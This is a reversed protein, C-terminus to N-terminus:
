FKWRGEIEAGLDGREDKFGRIRADDSLDYEVDIMTDQPLDFNQKLIARLRDNVEIALSGRIGGRATQDSFNPVFRVNGLPKFINKLWQQLPHSVVEPGFILREMAQMISLSMALYISGDPSGGWLLGIIQEEPLAPVSTFSITPKKASGQIQLQVDYGKITNEAILDLLPEDAHHPDLAVTGQKIYLPKYPFLLVGQSLYITGGVTPRALEGTITLRAAAEAEIFSTKIRIPSRTTCHLAVNIGEKWATSAGAPASLGKMFEQSFINDRLQTRDLFLNGQLTLPHDQQYTLMLAASLLTSVKKNLTILCDRMLLPAAAAMLRGSADFYGVAHSINLSGKHLRVACNTLDVKRRQWDIALDGSCGEILNYIAPIKIRAGDVALHAQLGETTIRGSFIIPQQLDLGVPKQLFRQALAATSFKGRLQKGDHKLHALQQQRHSLELGTLHWSRQLKARAAYQYDDWRGRAVIERPALRITGAVKHHINRPSELEAQYALDILQKVPDVLLRIADPILKWGGFSLSSKKRDIVIAYCADRQTAQATITGYADTTAAITLHPDTFPTTADVTLKQLTLGQYRLDTVTATITLDKLPDTASSRATLTFSDAQLSTPIQPVHCFLHACRGAMELTMTNQDRDSLLAGKVVDGPLTGTISTTTTGGQLALTLQQAGRPQQQLRGTLLGESVKKVMDYCYRGAVETAIPTAGHSIAGDNWSVTAMGQEGGFPIQTNIFLQAQWPGGDITLKGQSMVIRNIKLAAPLAVGAFLRSIHSILPITGGVVKAHATVGHLTCRLSFVGTMLSRLLSTSFTITAIKWHWSGDYAVATVEHAHLSGRLLSMTARDVRIPHHLVQCLIREVFRAAYRQLPPDHEILVTVTALSLLIVGSLTIGYLLRNM